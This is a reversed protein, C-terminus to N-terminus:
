VMSRKKKVGVERNPPVIVYYVSAMFSNKKIEEDHHCRSFHKIASKAQTENNGYGLEKCEVCMATYYEPHPVEIKPPSYHIREKASAEHEQKIIDEMEDMVSSITDLQGQIETDRPRAYASRLYSIGANVFFKAMMIKRQDYERKGPEKLIGKIIPEFEKQNFINEFRQQAAKYKPDVNDLHKSIVALFRVAKEAKEAIAGYTDSVNIGRKERSVLVREERKSLAYRYGM